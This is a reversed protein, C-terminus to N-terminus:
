RGGCLWLDNCKWLQFGKIYRMGDDIGASITWFGLKLLWEETLEIPRSCLENAESMYFWATSVTFVDNSTLEMLYNGLRLEEKKVEM